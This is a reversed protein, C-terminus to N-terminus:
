KLPPGRLPIHGGLLFFTPALHLGFPPPLRHPRAHATLAPTICRVACLILSNSLLFLTLLTLSDIHSCVKMACVITDDNWTIDHTFTFHAHTDDGKEAVVVRKSKSLLGWSEAVLLCVNGRAAVELAACVWWREDSEKYLETLSGTSVSLCKVSRNYIDALVLSDGGSTVCMWWISVDRRDAPAKLQQKTWTRRQTLRTPIRVAVLHM